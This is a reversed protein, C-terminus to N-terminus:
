LLFGKKFRSKFFIWFFSILQGELQIGRTNVYRLGEVDTDRGAEFHTVPNIRLTFDPIDVSYVDAPQRFFYRLFPKEYNPQNVRDTYNWNDNLLYTLNFQDSRSLSDKAQFAQEALDAVELRFYPKIGTHFNPVDNSFKIQFREIKHYTDPDLPVYTSQGFATIVLLCLFIILTTLIRM